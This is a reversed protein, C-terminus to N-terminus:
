SEKRPPLAAGSCARTAKGNSGVIHKAAITTGCEPCIGSVNGTLNGFALDFVRWPIQTVWNAFVLFGCGLITGVTLQRDTLRVQPLEGLSNLL